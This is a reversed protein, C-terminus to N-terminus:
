KRSAHNDLVATDARADSLRKSWWLGGIVGMISLTTFPHEQVLNQIFERRSSNGDPFLQELWTSHPRIEYEALDKRIEQDEEDSM